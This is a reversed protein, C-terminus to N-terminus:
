AALRLQEQFDDNAAPQLDAALDFITVKSAGFGSGIRQTSERGGPLRRLVTSWGSSWKTQAFVKRLEQHEPSNVVMLQWKGTAKDRHVRLGLQALREVVELSGTPDECVHRVAEGISLRRQVLYNGDMVRLSIVKSMLSEQCRDEDSVKQGEIHATLDLADCLIETDLETAPRDSFVTWYASLLTGYTDAMRASGGAAVIAKHFVAETVKFDSWRNIARRILRPGIERAVGEDLMSAEPKRSLVELQVWRSADAPNLSGPNIGAALFSSMFTYNVPTGAISGRTIGKNGESLSYSIRAIEFTDEHHRRKADYEFEDLLVGFSAQSLGQYWAAMSQAGACAYAMPGLLQTFMDIIVSKGTGRPGTLLVHPRRRLAPGLAAVVFWGLLLKDGVANTYTYGGLVDLVQRVEGDSAEVTDPGFGIDDCAPYVRDGILGHELVTGDAKWLQRGNIVLEGDALEWVGRHRQMTSAFPGKSQCDRIIDSALDRAKFVLEGTKPHLETYNDDCWDVGCVVKLEMERMSSPHLHVVNKTVKSLVVCKGNSMGLPEYGGLSSSGQTTAPENNKVITTTM